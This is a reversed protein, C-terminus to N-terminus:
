NNPLTNLGAEANDITRTTYKEEHEPSFYYMPKSDIASVTKKLLGNQHLWYAYPVALVLEISFEANCEVTTKKM